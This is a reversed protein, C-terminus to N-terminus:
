WPVRFRFATRVLSNYQFAGTLPLPTYADSGVIPTGHEAAARDREREIHPQVVPPAIPVFERLSGDEDEGGDMRSQRQQKSTFPEPPMGTVGPQRGTENASEYQVSAAAELLDARLKRM